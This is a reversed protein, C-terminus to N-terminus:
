TPVSRLTPLERKWSELGRRWAMSVSSLGLSRVELNEELSKDLSRLTVRRQAERLVANIIALRVDHEGALLEALGKRAAVDKKLFSSLM